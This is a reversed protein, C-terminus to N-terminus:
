SVAGVGGGNRERIETPTQQYFRALAVRMTHVTSFGSAIAVRSLPLSARTQLLHKAHAARRDRLATSPTTGNSAASRELVRRSVGLEKVAEAVGFSPTQYRRDILALFARHLDDEGVSRHVSIDVLLNEAFSQLLSRLIGASRQQEASLNDTLAVFFRRAVEFLIPDGLNEDDSIEFARQQVERADFSFLLGAADPSTRIKVPASGPVVVAVGIRREANTERGDLCVWGRTVMVLLYRRRAATRSRQWVANLAGAVFRAVLYNDFRVLRAEVRAAKSDPAVAIGVALLKKLSSQDDLAIQQTIFGPLSQWGERQNFYRMQTPDVDM